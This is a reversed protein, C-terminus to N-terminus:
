TYEFKHVNFKLCLLFREFWRESYQGTKSIAIMSVCLDNRLRFNTFVTNKVGFAIKRKFIFNLEHLNLNQNILHTVDNKSIFLFSRTTSNHFSDSKLFVAKGNVRIIALKKAYAYM